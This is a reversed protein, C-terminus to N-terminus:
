RFLPTVQTKYKGTNANTYTCNNNIDNHNHSYWLLYGKEGFDAGDTLSHIDNDFELLNQSSNRKGNRTVGSIQRKVRQSHVLLSPSTYQRCLIVIPWSSLYSHPHTKASNLPHFSNVRLCLPFRLRWHASWHDSEGLRKWLNLKESTPWQSKEWGNRSSLKIWSLIADVSSYGSVLQFIRRQVSVKSNNWGNARKGEKFWYM